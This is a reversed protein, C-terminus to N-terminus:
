VKYYYTSFAKDQVTHILHKEFGVIKFGHSVITTGKQLESKFKPLLKVILEPMLFIYLCDVNVLSYNFVNKQIFHVGKSTGDWRSLLRSWWILLPNIEIGIGKVGFKKVALRVMRGDGSGLEVFQAGKKLHANELITNLQRKSTPVYPAGKFASFLLGVGYISVGILIFLEVFLFFLYLPNNM